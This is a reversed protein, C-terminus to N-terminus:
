CSFHTQRFVQLDASEYHRFASGPSIDLGTPPLQNNNEELYNVLSRINHGCLRFSIYLDRLIAQHLPCEFITYITHTQRSIAQIRFEENGRDGEIITYFHSNVKNHYAMRLEEIKKAYRRAKEVSGRSDASITGGYTCPQDAVAEVWM